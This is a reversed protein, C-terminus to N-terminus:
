RRRRLMAVGGLGLLALTTPEPVVAPGPPVGANWNGLVVNLDTIGVFGDGSPDALPNIIPDNPPDGNNWDALVINLDAIGVFGDGNLDGALGPADAAIIELVVNDFHVGGGSSSVNSPGGFRLQSFGDATHPIDFYEASSDISGDRDLDFEFVMSDPKIIVSYSHWGPGRFRNVNIAEEDPEIVGSGDIDFAETGLDFAQWSPNPVGNTSDFLVARHVFHTPNNWMGLEIINTTGNLPDVSRMGLGMRKNDPVLPFGPILSTDDDFIDVSLKIWETASASIPSALDFANVVGGPHSATNNGVEDPVGDFDFDIETELVGDFGAWVASMAATDAYSEFDESVVVGLVAWSTSATGLLAACGLGLAFKRM